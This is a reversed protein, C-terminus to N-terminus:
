MALIGNQHAAPHDFSDQLFDTAAIVSHNFLAAISMISKLSQFIYDDLLDDNKNTQKRLHEVYKEQATICLMETESFGDGSSLASALINKGNNDVQNIDAGYSVLLAILDKDGNRVAYSLASKGNIDQAHILAGNNLLFKVVDIEGSYVACILPSRKEFDSHNVDAGISVLYEV